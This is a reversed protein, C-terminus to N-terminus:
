SKRKYELFPITTALLIGILFPIPLQYSFSVGSWLALSLLLSLSGLSSYTHVYEKKIRELLLFAITGSFIWGLFNSLPVGYWFGSVEYSWLGRAVAGPDLVLDTGVLLLLYIAFRYIKEKFLSSIFYSGFVLPTWAFFVTWPTTGFIKYGFPLTYSFDGYPFGTHVGISEIMLAFIGLLVVLLLGNKYKKTVAYFAPLSLLIVAIISAEEIFLLEPIYPLALGISFFIGITLYRFFSSM